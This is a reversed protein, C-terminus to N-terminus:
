TEGGVRHSRVALREVGCQSDMTALFKEVQYLPLALAVLLASRYIATMQSETASIRREVGDADGDERYDATDRGTRRSQMLQRNGGCVRARSAVM